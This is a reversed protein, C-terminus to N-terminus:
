EEQKCLKRLLISNNRFTPVYFESALPIVWIFYDCSILFLMQVASHVFTIYLSPLFLSLIHVEATLLTRFLLCKLFWNQYIKGYRSQYCRGWCYWYLCASSFGKYTAWIKM